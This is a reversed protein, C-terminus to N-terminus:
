QEGRKKYTNKQLKYGCYYRDRSHLYPQKQRWKLWMKSYNTYCKLVIKELIEIMYKNIRKPNGRLHEANARLSSTQGETVALMKSAHCDIKELIENM